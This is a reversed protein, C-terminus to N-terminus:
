ICLLTSTVDPNSYRQYFCWAEEFATLLSLPQSLGFCKSLRYLSLDFENEFRQPQVM